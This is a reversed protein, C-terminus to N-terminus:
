DYGPFYEKKVREDAINMEKLLSIMAEVMKAPGSSYYVWEGPNPIQERIMQANIRGARGKWAAGPRTLTHVVTLRRNRAMLRDLEDRFPIDDEQRNSYFLIIENELARDTCYRIISLLPTIGIGGSLMAIKKHEGKFIFNGYPGTFRIKDDKKLSLYANSFEHGTLRKVVELHEGTPSSSLSLPKNVAGNESDLSLIVFQGAVYEFGQPRVFRIARSSPTVDVAEIIQTEFPVKTMVDVKM